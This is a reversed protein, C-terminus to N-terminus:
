LLKGTPPPASEGGGGSTPVLVSVGIGGGNFNVVRKRNQMCYPYIAGLREYQEREAANYADILAQIDDPPELVPAPQPNSRRIKENYKFFPNNM